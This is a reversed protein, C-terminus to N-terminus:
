KTKAEDQTMEGLGKWADWKARGVFDLMGPRSTTNPGQHAQKYLAYMQLKATNDSLPPLTKGLAVKAQFQDSLSSMFM